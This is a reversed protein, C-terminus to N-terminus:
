RKEGLGGREEGNWKHTQSACAAFRSSLAASSCCCCFPLLLWRSAFRRSGRVGRFASQGDYVQLRSPFFQAHTRAHALAEVWLEKLPEQKGPRAYGRQLPQTAQRNSLPERTSRGRRESTVCPYSAHAEEARALLVAPSRRKGRGGESVPNQREKERDQISCWRERTHVDESVRSRGTASEVINNRM